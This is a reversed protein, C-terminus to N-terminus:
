RLTSPAPAQTDNDVRFSSWQLGVPDLHLLLSLNFHPMSRKARATVIGSM